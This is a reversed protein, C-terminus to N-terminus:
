YRPQWPLRLKQAMSRLGPLIAGTSQSFNVTMRLDDEADPTAAWGASLYNVSLDVRDSLQSLGLNLGTRTGGGTRDYRSGGMAFTPSLEAQLGAINVGRSASFQWLTGDVPLSLPADMSADYWGVSSDVRWDRWRLTKAALQLALPTSVDARTDVPAGLQASFQWPRGFDTLSKRRALVLTQAVASQARLASPQHLRLDHSLQWNAGLSQNNQLELGRDGAVIASGLANFQPDAQFYGFTAHGAAIDQTLGIRAARGPLVDGNESKNSVQVVETSLDPMYWREGLNLRNEVRMLTQGDGLATGDGETRLASARLLPMDGAGTHWQLGSTLYHKNANSLSDVGVFAEAIGLSRGMGSLDIQREDGHITREFASSMFPSISKTPGASAALPWLLAFGTALLFLRIVLGDRPM